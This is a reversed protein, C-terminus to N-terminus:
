PPEIEKPKEPKKAKTLWERAASDDHYKARHQFLRYLDWHTLGVVAFPHPPPPLSPYTPMLAGGGGGGGFLSSSHTMSNTRTRMPTSGNTLAAFTFAPMSISTTLGSMTGIPVLAANSNTSPTLTNPGAFGLGAALAPSTMAGINLGGGSSGPTPTHYGSPGVRLSPLSLKNSSSAQGAEAEIVARLLATDHSEQAKARLERLQLAALRETEEAQKREAQSKLDLHTEYLGALIATPTLMIGYLKEIKWLECLVYPISSWGPPEVYKAFPPAFNNAPNNADQTSPPSVPSGLPSVGGTFPTTMGSSVSEPVSALTPGNGPTSPSAMSSKTQVKSGINAAKTYHVDHALNKVSYPGLRLQMALPLNVVGSKNSVKITSEFWHEPVQLVDVVFAKLLKMAEGIRHLQERSLGESVSRRQYYIVGDITRRAVNRLELSFAEYVELLWYIGIERMIEVHLKATSWKSAHAFVFGLLEGFCKEIKASSWRVPPASAGSSSSSSSDSYLLNFITNPLLVETLGQALLAISPIFLRELEQGTAGRHIFDTSEILHRAVTDLKHMIVRTTNLHLITLNSLTPLVDDYGFKHTPKIPTGDPGVTEQQAKRKHIAKTREKETLSSLPPYIHTYSQNLLFRTQLEERVGPHLAFINTEVYWLSLKSVYELLLRKHASTCPKNKLLAVYYDIRQGLRALTMETATAAPTGPTTAGGSGSGSGSGGGRDENSELRRLEAEIEDLVSEIFGDVLPAFWERMYQLEISSRSTLLITTLQGNLTLDVANSDSASFPLLAHQFYQLELYIQFVDGIEHNVRRVRAVGEDGGVEHCRARLELVKPMRTQTLYQQCARWFIGVLGRRVHEVFDTPQPFARLFYKEGIRYAGSIEQLVGHLVLTLHLDSAFPKVEESESVVFSGYGVGVGVGGDAVSANLNPAVSASPATVAGAGTGSPTSPSTNYPSPVPAEGRDAANPLAIRWAHWTMKRFCRRFSEKLRPALYDGIAYRVQETSSENSVIITTSAGRKHQGIPAIPSKNGNTTTTTPPQCRAQLIKWCRHLLDHCARLAEPGINTQAPSRPHLPHLSSLPVPPPSPSPSPSSSPSVAINVGNAGGMDDTVEERDSDGDGIEIAVGGGDDGDEIERQAQQRQKAVAAAAAMDQKQKKSAFLNAIGEQAAKTFAAATSAAASSETVDRKENRRARSAAQRAAVEAKHLRSEEKSRLFTPLTFVFPYRTACLSAWRVLRELYVVYSAREHRTWQSTRTLQELVQITELCAAFFSWSQRLNCTLFHLLALLRFVPEINYLRAFADLIDRKEQSLSPHFNANVRPRDFHVTQRYPPSAGSALSSARPSASDSKPSSGTSSSPPPGDPQYCLLAYLLQAYVQHMNITRESTDYRGMTGGPRTRRDTSTRTSPSPSHITIGIDDLVREANRRMALQEAYRAHQALLEARAALYATREKEENPTRIWDDDDSTDETLDTQLSSSATASPASVRAGNAGDSINTAQRAERAARHMARVEDRQAKTRQSEVTRRGFRQRRPIPPPEVLSKPAVHEFEVLNPGVGTGGGGGGGVGTVVSSSIPVTPSMTPICERDMRQLEEMLLEGDDYTNSDESGGSAFDDGNVCHDCCSLFRGGQRAVRATVTQSAKKLEYLTNSIRLLELHLALANTKLWQAYEHRASKRDNPTAGFAGLRYYPHSDLTDLQRKLEAKRVQLRERESKTWIKTFEYITEPEALRRRADRSSADTCARALLTVQTQFLIRRNASLLCSRVGFRFASLLSTSSVDLRHLSLTSPDGDETDFHNFLSSIGPYLTGDPLLHEGRFPTHWRSDTLDNPSIATTLPPTLRM